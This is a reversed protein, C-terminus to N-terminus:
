FSSINMIITKELYLRKQKLIKKYPGMLLNSVLKVVKIYM